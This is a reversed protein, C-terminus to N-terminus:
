PGGLQPVLIHTYPSFPLLPPLRVVPAKHDLFYLFEDFANVYLQVEVIQEIASNTICLSKQLCELM